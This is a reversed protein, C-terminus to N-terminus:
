FKAKLNAAKALIGGISQMFSMLADNSHQLSIFSSKFGESLVCSSCLNRFVPVLQVRGLLSRSRRAPMSRSLQSGLFGSNIRSRM